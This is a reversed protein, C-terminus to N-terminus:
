HRRGVDVSGSAYASCVARNARSRVSRTSGDGPRAIRAIRTYTTIDAQSTSGHVSVILWPFLAADEADIGAALVGCPAGEEGEVRELMAPLFARADDGAVSVHGVDVLAHPKHRLDEVLVVQGIQAAVHGDAVRTIGGGARRAQAVRLGVHQLRQVAREGDAVVAVQDVRRLQAALEQLAADAELRGGVALQDDVQEGAGASGSQIVRMRM